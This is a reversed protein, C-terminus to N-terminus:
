FPNESEAWEKKKEAPASAQSGDRRENRVVEVTAWRLSPAVEDATIQIKSRKENTEKDEWSQQDLRGYVVVRAGKPISEAVNEALQQWCTIDFFSTTPNEKTGGNVAVGFNCLATGSPTFKLEPDRVVNGAITVTNDFAM